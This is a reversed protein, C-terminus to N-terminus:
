QISPLLEDQYISVFHSIKKEFGHNMNGLHDEGYGTNYKFFILM